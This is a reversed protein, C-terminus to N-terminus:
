RVFQIKKFNLESHSKWTYGVANLATPTPVQLAIARSPAMTVGYTAWTLVTGYSLMYLMFTIAVTGLPFLRGCTFCPAHPYTIICHIKFVYPTVPNTQSLTPDLSLSTFMTNFSLISYFTPNISQSLLKWIKLVRCRPYISLGCFSIPLLIWDIVAM